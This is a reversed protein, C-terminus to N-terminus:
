TFLEHCLIRDEALFMNAHSLNQKAQNHEGQFYKELVEKTLAQFRFASFAGPLVSIYGCASEFRKDLLQSIKYEFHQCAVLPNLLKWDLRVYIEGCAGAVNPHNHFEKWLHFVSSSTPITGCDLLIVVKPNLQAAFANFAWRHSNIKKM